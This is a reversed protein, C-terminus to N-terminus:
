SSIATELRSLLLPVDLDFWPEGDILCSARILGDLCRPAVVEASDEPLRLRRPLGDIVIGVADDDHGLVLLMARSSAEAPPLELHSALDFVPVLLGHLNTMGLLWDPACPLSHVPPLDALESGEDYRVMLRLSGVRFGQRAQESAAAAASAGAVVASRDATAAPQLAGSGAFDDGWPRTLAQEASLQPKEVRATRQGSSATYM